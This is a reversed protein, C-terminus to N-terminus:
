YKASGRELHTDVLGEVALPLCGTGLGAMIRKRGSDRDIVYPEVNLRFKINRYINLRGGSNSDSPIINIINLWRGEYLM